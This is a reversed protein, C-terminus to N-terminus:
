CDKSNLLALDDSYSIHLFRARPNLALGRAILNIAVLETKSSCPPMNIVVNKLERDIVKQVTDVILAYHWNLHFRIGQHYKFFYRTFFLHNQECKAKATVLGAVKRQQTPRDGTAFCM